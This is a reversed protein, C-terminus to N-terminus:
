PDSEIIKRREEDFCAVAEPDRDYYKELMGPQALPAPGLTVYGPKISSAAWTPPIVASVVEFLEPQFLAAVPEDGVLRFMAGSPTIEITLVHYTRGVKLWGSDEQPEGAWNKLQVCRVKM